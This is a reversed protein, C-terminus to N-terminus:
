YLDVSMSSVASSTVKFELRIRNIGKPIKRWSHLWNMKLNWDSEILVAAADAIAYGALIDKFELRIRNIRERPKAPGPLRHGKFELRIRNIGAASKSYLM